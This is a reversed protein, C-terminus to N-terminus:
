QIICNHKRKQYAESEDPLYEDLISPKENNCNIVNLGLIQLDDVDIIKKINDKIKQVDITYIKIEKSERNNIM